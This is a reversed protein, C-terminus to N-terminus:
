WCGTSRVQQAHTRIHARSLFFGHCVKLLSVLRINNGDNIGGLFHTVTNLAGSDLALLYVCCVVRSSGGGDNQVQECKTSSCTPSISARASKMRTYWVSIVRCTSSNVATVSISLSLGTSSSCSM